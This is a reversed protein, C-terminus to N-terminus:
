MKIPDICGLGVLRIINPHCLKDFMAFMLEYHLYDPTHHPLKLAIERGNLRCRSVSGFGGSGLSTSGLLAAVVEATQFMQMSRCESVVVNAQPLPPPLNPAAAPEISSSTPLPPPVALHRRYCYPTAPSATKPPRLASSLADMLSTCESLPLWAAPPSTWVQIGLKKFGVNSKGVLNALQTAIILQGRLMGTELLSFADVQSAPLSDCDVQLMRYTGEVFRPCILAFVVQLYYCTHRYVDFCSVDIIRM